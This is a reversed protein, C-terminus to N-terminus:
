GCVLPLCPLLQADLEGLPGWCCCCGRVLLLWCCWGLIEGLWGGDCRPLGGPLWLLGEIGVRIVGRSPLPPPPEELRAGEALLSLMGRSVVSVRWSQWSTGSTPTSDSELSELLEVPLLEALESELSESCSSAGAGGLLFEEEECGEWEEM